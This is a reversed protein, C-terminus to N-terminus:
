SRLILRVLLRIEKFDCMLGKKLVNLTKIEIVNGIPKVNFVCLLESIHSRWSLGFIYRFIKRYAIHIRYRAEGDININGIGYMLIPVCKKVILECRVVESLDSSHLLVDYAAINFKRIREHIDITLQCRRMILNVGLYKISKDVKKIVVDNMYFVVNLCDNYVNTYFWNTKNPNFRIGYVLGYKCCIDIMKQMKIVSGGLLIIDDAYFITGYYLGGIMCGLGENILNKMLDDVYVNYLVPSLLGGQKIGSYINVYETYYGGLRVCVSSSSYWSLLVRMIECPVDRDILKSLLGFINIKDFAASADLTVIYVDSNRKIFHNVVNTVTFLSRECGGGKVYGFQLGSVKLYKNIKSYICAEFLKSLLSIITIPRYNDVDLLDKNKDKIIPTIVGIKFDRPVHGHKLIMMFLNSLNMYIIPHAYVVHEICLENRDRSKRLHLSQACREIEEVTLEVISKEKVNNYKEIMEEYRCLFDNMLNKDERSDVYKKEFSKLLNDSVQKNEKSDNNVKHMHKLRNWQKWFCNNNQNLLDEVYEKRRLNKRKKALRVEYRYAKKSTVMDEYLKGFKISNNNVWERFKSNAEKKLETLHKNWKFTKNKVNEENLNKDSWVTSSYLANIIKDCYEDIMNSHNTDSCLRGVDCKINSIAYLQERTNKYYQTRANNDWRPVRYETNLMTTQMRISCEVFLVIPKHDSWNDIDEIVELRQVNETLSSTMMIHDLMSYIQLVDNHFTYEGNIELEETIINMNYENKFRQLVEVNANSNLRVCDVNFDGIVCMEVNGYVSRQQEVIYEMFSVCELIETVYEDNNVCCPLYVNFLCINMENCEIICAMIRKNFSSSLYKIKNKFKKNWMIALGGSPRGSSILDSNEM